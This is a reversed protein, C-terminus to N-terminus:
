TSSCEASSSRLPSTPSRAGSTDLTTRASGAPSMRASSSRTSTSGEFLERILSSKNGLHHDLSYEQGKPPAPPGASPQSPKIPGSQAAPDPPPKVDLIRAFRRKIAGSSVAPAGLKATIAGMLSDPAEIALEALARRVRADTFVRDGFNDLEGGDVAPRSILNLLKAKEASPESEDALDVEFLLKQDMAVPENTKYVRWRAGNTLVCWLVGDNNAYNITQAIFKKDDLNRAWV